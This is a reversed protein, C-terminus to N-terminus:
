LELGSGDDRSRQRSQDRDHRRGFGPRSSLKKVLKRTHDLTESILPDDRHQAARHQIASDAPTDTGLRYGWNLYINAADTLHRSPADATLNPDDADTTVLVLKASREAARATLSHLQDPQLHDADDVILPGYLGRAM